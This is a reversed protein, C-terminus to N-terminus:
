QNITTVTVSSIAHIPIWRETVDAIDKVVVHDPGVQIVTHGLPGPVGDLVGIEFRGAVERLAVPMGARLPSLAGVRAAPAQGSAIVVIAALLLGSLFSPIRSLPSPTM